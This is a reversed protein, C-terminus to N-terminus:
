FALLERLILDSSNIGNPNLGYRVLTRSHPREAKGCLARCSTLLLWKEDILLEM